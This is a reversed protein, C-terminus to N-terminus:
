WGSGPLEVLALPRVDAPRRLSITRGVIAPCGDGAARDDLDGADGAADAAHLVLSGVALGDPGDSTTSSSGCVSSDARDGDALAVRALLDEGAGDEAQGPGPLFIAPIM